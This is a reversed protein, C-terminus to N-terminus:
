RGLRYQWSLDWVSAKWNFYHTLSFAFSSKKTISHVYRGGLGLSFLENERVKINEEFGLNIFRFGIPVIIGIRNRYDSRFDVGPTFAFNFWSKGKVEDRFNSAIGKLTGLGAGFGYNFVYNPNRTPIQFVYTFNLSQLQTRIQDIAGSEVLTFRDTMFGYSM